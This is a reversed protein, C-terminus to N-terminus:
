WVFNVGVTIGHYSLCSDNVLLKDSESVEVQKAGLIGNQEANFNNLALAVNEYSLYQYGVYIFSCSCWEYLLKAGVDVGWSTRTDSEKDKYSQIIDRGVAVFERKTCNAYVAGKGSVEVSFCSTCPVCFEMGLQFGHMDNHTSTNSQYWADNEGITNYQFDEELCQYRYGYLLSGRCIGWLKKVNVEVTELKSELGIEQKCSRDTDDFGGLPSEGFNSLVSYLQYNQDLVSQTNKFCIKPTWTIEVAKCGQMNAQGILKFGSKWGMDLMDTNLVIPGQVGQSTIDINESDDCRKLYIYEAGVEFGCVDWCMPNLEPIVMGACQWIGFGQVSFPIAALLLSLFIKNAIKMVLGWM